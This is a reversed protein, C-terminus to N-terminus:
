VPETEPWDSGSVYLAWWDCYSVSNNSVGSQSVWSKFDCAINGRGRRSQWVLGCYWPIGTPRSPIGNELPGSWDWGVTLTLPWQVCCHRPILCSVLFTEWKLLNLVAVIGKGRGGGGCICEAVPIGENHCLQRCLVTQLKDNTPQREVLSWHLRRNSSIIVHKPKGAENQKVKGMIISAEWVCDRNKSVAMLLLAEMQWLISQAERMMGWGCLINGALITLLGAKKESKLCVRRMM